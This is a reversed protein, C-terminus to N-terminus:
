KQESIKKNDLYSKILSIIILTVDDAKGAIPIIDPILDVPLLVYIIALILLWNGKFFTVPRSEQKTVKVVEKEM